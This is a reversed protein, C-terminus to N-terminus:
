SHNLVTMCDPMYRLKAQVDNPSHDTKDGGKRQLYILPTLHVCTRKTNCNDYIDKLLTDIFLSASCISLSLINGDKITTHIFHQPKTSENDDNGFILSQILEKDNPVKKREGGSKLCVTKILEKISDNTPLADISRRDFSWGRGGGNGNKLQVTTESADDFTILIDSKKRGDIKKCKIIKKEFYQTGLDNLIDISRCLICEADNGSKAILSNKSKTLTKDAKVVIKQDKQHILDILQHKKKGSIGKIKQEKCIAKLELITNKSYNM